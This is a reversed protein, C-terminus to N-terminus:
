DKKALSLEIEEITNKLYNLAAENETYSPHYKAFKVADGTQLAEAAHSQTEAQLEHSKLKTLIEGTTKNFFNRDIRRSYYIRLVDTLKTHYEKVTFTNQGNAKRLEELAEMAESYATISDKGPIPKKRNKFYRYMFFAAVLLVLIGAGIYVWLWNFFSVELISKIDRAEGSKDIPMYGVNVNFSDTYLFQSVTNLHRIRYSLAPFSWSGSDFSTLVVKYEWTYNNQKDTANGTGKSVVDFHPISDPVNIDVLYEASPLGVSMRYTIQEGILIDKKDVSTQISQASADNLPLLFMCVLLLSLFYKPYIIKM